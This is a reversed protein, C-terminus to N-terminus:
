AQPEKIPNAKQDALPTVRQKVGQQILTILIIVGAFIIGAAAGIGLDLRQFAREYIFFILTKSASLPGGGTLVYIEGFIKLTGLTCITMVLTLMGQLQPLTIYAFQQLPSAGDLQAAEYLSKPISELRTILMMMYYASAKWIIVLAVAPMVWETSTLWPVSGLGVQQLLANFLGEGSLLWKWLMGAVIMSVVVPLYVLTRALMVGGYQGSFTLAMVTSVVVVGPMVLILLMLTNRLALQFEGSAIVAKYNDLAVFSPTYLNHTYDLMSMRIAELTPWLFVFALWLLPLALLKWAVSTKYLNSDVVPTKM